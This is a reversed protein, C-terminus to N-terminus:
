KVATVEIEVLAEDEILASVEVVSMAPFHKGIVERYVPGLEALRSVYAQKDTIFWTMRTIHEPGAGASELVACVNLLAQKIQAIFDGTEFVCQANWGIQGGVYITETGKALIGNAYGKPRPWGEPLLTTHM